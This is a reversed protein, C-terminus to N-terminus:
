VQSFSLLNTNWKIRKLAKGCSKNKQLVVSVVRM